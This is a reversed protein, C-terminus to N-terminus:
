EAGKKLWRFYNLTSRVTELHGFEMNIFFEATPINDFLWDMHQSPTFADGQAGYTLAVPVAIKGLNFRWPRSLAILDDIRGDASVRLSDAHVETIQEAWYGRETFHQDNSNIEHRIADLVAHQNTRSRDAIRMFEYIQKALAVKGLTCARFAVQNGHSMGEFWNIEADIPALSSTVAANAILEPLLAAAALAGPGGGSRGFMSARSIGLAQALIDVHTAVDAVIRGPQRGSRGNGPRSYSVARIRDAYLERTKPMPGKASGPMGHGFFIPWGNLIDGTQRFELLLETGNDLPGRILGHLPSGNIDEVWVHCVQPRANQALATRETREPIGSLESAKAFAAEWVELEPREM